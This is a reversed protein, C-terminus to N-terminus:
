SPLFDIPYTVTIVPVKKNAFKFQKVKSVLRKELSPNNLESSLIKCSTVTGDPEITLELVVKGQLTPDKRLARNYINFIGGKNKQFVREIEEQSRIAARSSKPTSLKAIQEQNQITSTVRATSKQSLESRSIKRNLTNTKIGGSGKNASASLFDETSVVEDAENGTKQQPLAGSDSFDFSDRLDALEDQMSMLGSKMAKKRAAARKDEKPLIKPKPEPKIEKKIEKKPDPEKVEKKPPPPPPPPPIKKKELILKALRPAVDELKRKEVEPLTMQNLVFGAIMFIIMFAYVIRKFWRDEWGEQWPLSLEPSSIVVAM